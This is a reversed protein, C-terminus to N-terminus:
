ITVNSDDIYPTGDNPKKPPFFVRHEGAMKEIIARCGTMICSMMWSCLVGLWDPHGPVDPVWLPQSQCMATSWLPQVNCHMTPTPSREKVLSGKM